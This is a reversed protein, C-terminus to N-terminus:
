ASTELQARRVRAQVDRVLERELEIEVEHHEVDWRSVSAIWGLLPRRRPVVRRGRYVLIRRDPAALQEQEEVDAGCLRIVEESTTEGPVIRALTERSLVVGHDRGQDSRGIHFRTVLRHGLRKFLTNILPGALNGLVFFLMPILVPAWSRLGSFYGFEATLLQPVIVESRDLFLSVVKTSEMTESLKRSASPPSVQALKLHDADRFNLLLQSPAEALRVIRDRHEFYMPFVARQRVDHFSLSIVYRHGWFVNEVWSAQRPTILTRVKFTLDMLRTRNALQPTWPIRVYTAPASLGLAGSERVFTVYSAGGPIPEPPADTDMQFLTQASLALRGEDIVTFGREEVYRILAPDARGAAPNGAVAGPWLLFLDQALELASRRPPIVLSWLVDVQVPGLEPTVTARVFLPGISFKPNPQAALFV